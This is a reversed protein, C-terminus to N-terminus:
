ELDYLDKYQQYYRNLEIKSRIVTVAPYVADAHYGDTRIYQAKFGVTDPIPPDDVTPMFPVERAFLDDIPLRKDAGWYIRTKHYVGNDTLRNWRIIKYTLAEYERSGGDDYSGKPVPFFLILGIALVVSLGIWVIKKM